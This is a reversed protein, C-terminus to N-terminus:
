KKEEAPKTASPTQAAKQAKVFAQYAQKWDHGQATIYQEIKTKFPEFVPGIENLNKVDLAEERAQLLIEMIVKDHEATLQPVIQHYAAFTRKLTGRTLNEKVIDVLEPTLNANLGDNLSQRVSKAPAFGANHTDRVAKLNTRLIDSVRAEKNPDNLRLAAVIEKVRKELAADSAATAKPAAAALQAVQRPTLDDQSVKIMKRGIRLLVATKDDPGVTAVSPAKLAEETVDALKKLEGNIGIVTDANLIVSREVEKKLKSDQWRYLLTVTQDPNVTRAVVHIGVTKTLPAAPPTNADQAWTLAACLTLSLTIATMRMRKM